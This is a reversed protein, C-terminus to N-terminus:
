HQVIIKETLLTKGDNIHILYVGAAFGDLNLTEHIMGSEAIWTNAYLKKGHLDVIEITAAEVVHAMNITIEGHTPNPFVDLILTKAVPSNIADRKGNKGALAQADTKLPILNCAGLTATPPDARLMNRAIVWPVCMTLGDNCIVLNWENEPTPCHYQGDWDINLSATYTCGTGADFVDVSITTAAMPRYLDISNDPYYTRPLLAPSGSNSWTYTFPGVGGSVSADIRKTDALGYYFTNPDTAPTWFNKLGSASLSVNVTPCESDGENVVIRDLGIYNSNIGDPGGNPVYYRFAVRSDVNTGVGSVTITYKTWTDPYIGSALTPNIELLLSTYSGVSTPSNPDTSLAGATSLRVQLNDPFGFSESTRTYFSIVDGDTLTIIPTILWNSITAAGAVNNFNAGIYATPAGDFATFVESNGQFWSILGLPQSTNIQSWNDGPLSMINDFGENLLQANANMSIIFAFIITTIKKM